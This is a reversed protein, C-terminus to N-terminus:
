SSLRQQMNASAIVDTLTTFILNEVTERSHTAQQLDRLAAGQRAARAPDSLLDTCARAFSDADSAVSLNREIDPGFGGSAFATSVVPRSYACAEIVKIQSGAGELIPCIAARAQAYESALDDVAGVLEVGPQTILDSPLSSWDGLGVVRV